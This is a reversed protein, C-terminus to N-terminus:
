HISGALWVIEPDPVCKKEANIVSRIIQIKLCGVYWVQVLCILM